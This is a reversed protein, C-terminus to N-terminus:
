GKAIGTWGQVKEPCRKKSFRGLLKLLKNNEDRNGSVADLSQRSELQHHAGSTQFNLLTEKLPDCFLCPEIRLDFASGAPMYKEIWIKGAVKRIHVSGFHDPIDAEWLFLCVISFHGM